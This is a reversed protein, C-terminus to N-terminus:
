RLTHWQTVQKRPSQKMANWHHLVSGRSSAGVLVKGVHQQPSGAVPTTPSDPSSLSGGQGPDRHSVVVLFVVRDLETQPVDFTLSENYVPCLTGQRPATKKKKKLKGNHFLLIRVCPFFSEVNNLPSVLNSAKMISFTLREATPLYSLGFLIEGNHQKPEKLDLHLIQEDPNGVLQLEKLAVLAEGVETDNSYKDLDFLAVLLSCDKLEGKALDASFNENFLPCQTKRKVQTQYQLLCHAGGGGGICSPRRLSSGSGRKKKIRGKLIKVVVYPDCIGGYARPALNQVERINVLLKGAPYGTTAPNGGPSTQAQYRLSLTAHGLVVDGEEGVGEVSTVVDASNDSHVSAEGRSSATSMSSYTSDRQARSRVFPLLVIGGPTSATIGGEAGAVPKDGNASVPKTTVPCVPLPIVDTGYYLKKRREKEDDKGWICHYLWCHPTVVCVTVLITAAVLGACSAVLMLKQADSLELM